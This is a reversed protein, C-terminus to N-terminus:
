ERPLDWSYIDEDLGEGGEQADAGLSTIDYDQSHTGPSEYIFDNGWGDRPMGDMYPGDWKRPKPPATPEELFAVLGQSTTPYRGNDQMYLELADRMLGIQAITTSRRAQEQRRAFKPLVLSALLGLIVMVVILEILTFGARRGVARSRKCM